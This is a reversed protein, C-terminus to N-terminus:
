LLNDFTLMNMEPGMDDSALSRIYVQVMRPDKHGLLRSIKILPVGKEALNTAFTHRFRHLHFKVGSLRELRDVWHKTGEYGLGSDTNLSVFLQQTKCNKRQDLYDELVMALIPNIPLIRTDRSKSTEDRVTLMKKELNVDTVQLGLLEGRRIGCFLLTSIIARDRKKQLLTTSHNEIATRIREIDGKRLARKDDYVPKFKPLKRIPNKTIHGERVLWEFFVNLKMAYTAVTSDKVGITEIGKGVIRTRTQMEQFFTTLSETTLSDITVRALKRFLNYSARYGILTAPRLRNVYQCERMFQDFLEELKDPNVNQNTIKTEEM